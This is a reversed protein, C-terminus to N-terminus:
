RILNALSNFKTFVALFDKYGRPQILEKEVMFKNLNVCFNALTFNEGM